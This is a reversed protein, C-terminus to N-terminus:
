TLLQVTFGRLDLWLVIAKHIIAAQTHSRGKAWSLPRIGLCAVEYGLTGREQYIDPGPVQKCHWACVHM